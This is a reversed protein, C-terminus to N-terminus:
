PTGPPEFFAEPGREFAAVTLVSADGGVRLRVPYSPTSPLREEIAGQSVVLV